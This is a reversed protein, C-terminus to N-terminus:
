SNIKKLLWAMNKGLKKMTEIGEEDKEVDGKKLGIGVNWYSSGPVIMENILFFHNIADFTSMAGTRRVAVIAAGIKHNFLCGNARGVYGARDILAKLESTMMSFYTPSGLIIGDAEIMKKVYVNINDETIKCERNRLKVCTGCAMCGHILQGGLQIFETEIGEEQLVKLVHQILSATNGNERPSGNFAIVKM